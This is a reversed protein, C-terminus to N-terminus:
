DEGETRSAGALTMTCLDDVTKCAAIDSPEVDHSYESTAFIMFELIMLSDWGTVENLAETGTISGAPVSLLKEFKRYFEDEKM